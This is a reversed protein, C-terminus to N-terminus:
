KTNKKLTSGDNVVDVTQVNAIGTLFVQIDDTVQNHSIKLKGLYALIDKSLQSQPYEKSTRQYHDIVEKLVFKKSDVLFENNMGFYIQYYYEKSKKFTEAYYTNAYKKLNDELLLIRKAVIDLNFKQTDADYFPHEFEDESFQITAKLSDTMYAEYNKLMYSMNPQVTIRGNEEVFYFHDKLVEGVFAKLTQDEIKKADETQNLDIKKAKAAAMVDHLGEAKSTLTPLKQYMAYLLGDIANSSGEKSLRDLNPKMKAELVQPESPKTAMDMYENMFTKEEEKTFPEKACAVLSLFISILFVGLWIRKLM